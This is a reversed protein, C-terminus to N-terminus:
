LGLMGKKMSEQAPSHGLWIRPMARALGGGTVTDMERDNFVVRTNGSATFELRLRDGEKTQSVARIAKDLGAIAPELQEWEAETVNDRLVGHFNDLITDAGVSRKMVLEVCLPGGADLIAEADHGPHKVYLAAVYVKVMLLSRVGAGNLKLHHGDVDCTRSLTVGAVTLPTM